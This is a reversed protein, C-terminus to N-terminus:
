QGETVLGKGPRRCGDSGCGDEWAEELCGKLVGRESTGGLGFWLLWGRVRRGLEQCYPGCRVQEELKKGCLASGM